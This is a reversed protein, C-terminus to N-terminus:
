QGDAFVQRNKIIYMVGSYLTLLVAIGFLAYTVYTLVDNAFYCILFMFIVAIDQLVTKIKGSKDAAIIINNSAAIQRFGGIILERGIILSVGIAGYPSPIITMELLMFLAVAVLVKDAIPDLFKGTNTVMNKKRAIYGDLFDTFACVSFIGATILYNYPMSKLYFFVIMIPILCIRSITIKNPLNM